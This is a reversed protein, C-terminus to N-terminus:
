QLEKDGSLDPIDKEDVYKEPNAMLEQWVGLPDNYIKELEDEVASLESGYKKRIEPDVSPARPMKRSSGPSPLKKNLVSRMKAIALAVEEDTMDDLRKDIDDVEEKSM